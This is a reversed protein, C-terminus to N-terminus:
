TAPTINAGYASNNASTIGGEVYHTNSGEGRVDISGTLTISGNTTVNGSGITLHGGGGGKLTIPGEVTMNGGSADLWLKATGTSTVGGSTIANANTIQLTGANLTWGGTSSRNGTVKLNGTGNKSIAGSSGIIDGNLILHHNSGMDFVEATGAQQFNANIVDTLSGSSVASTQVTPGGLFINSSGNITYANQASSTNEFYISYIYSYANSTRDVTTYASGTLYSDNFYVLGNPFDGSANWNNGDYFDTSDNGTWYRSGSQAFSQDICCFLLLGVASAFSVIIRPLISM